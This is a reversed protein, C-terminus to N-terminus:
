AKSAAKKRPKEAVPKANQTRILKPVWGTGALRTEAEQALAGKKMSLLAARDEEGTVKEAETLAELILDKSVRGLYNGVTPTFHDAMSLNLAELYKASLGDAEPALSVSRAMAYAILADLDAPKLALVADWLEIPGKPFEEILADGFAIFEAEKAQGADDTIPCYTRTGYGNTVGMDAPIASSNRRIDAVFKCVFLAKAAKANTSTAVQAALNRYGLLSRRLADSLADAKRGAPETVRGGSIHQGDELLAAVKARDAARVLGREIRIKGHQYVVLAGAFEIVGPAYTAAQEKLKASEKLLDESQDNLADLQSDEETTLEGENAELVEIAAAVQEQQGALAALQLKVEDSLEVTITPAKGFRDFETWNWTSWIDVWGWGEIRLAEAQEHLKADVLADLLAVDELIVGGGETAFMDRRAVGGAMEYAEVGGIFAVRPDNAAEVEADIVARRLNAPEKGYGYSQDKVRNWVSLQRDHNDTACLAILQDTTLLDARFDVLLAPAAARLKLRREVVLPTVGFSDAIANITWGQKSLDLFADLEDAPHMAERQINEALSAATIAEDDIVKCPVPYTDPFRGSEVLLGIAEFRRGGAAVHGLDDVMHVVLNQLVGQAFISAALSEIGAKYAAKDRGSRRVNSVSRRLRNYPIQVITDTSM